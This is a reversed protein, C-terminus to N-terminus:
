CRCKKPGLWCYIGIVSTVTFAIQMVVLGAAHTLIGYAIWIFNSILFAVFGWGSRSNNLALLGAGLVGFFCGIWQLADIYQM